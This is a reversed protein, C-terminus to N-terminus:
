GTIDHLRRSETVSILKFKILTNDTSQALNRFSASSVVAIKPYGGTVGHHSLLVVSDGSPTIQIAGRVIGESMLDQKIKYNLKPGNLWMGMRDRKSTVTFESTFFRDIQALTFKDFQPGPTVYIDTSTTLLDQKLWKGIFEKTPQLELIDDRSFNDGNNYGLRNYKNMSYSGFSPSHNPKNKFGIYGYMLKNTHGVQIIDGTQLTYIQFLSGSKQVGKQM